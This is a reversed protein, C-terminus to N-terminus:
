IDKMMYTDVLLYGLRRYYGRVGTGSIIAVKRYGKDRAIEEAKAVLQKGYGKHQLSGEINNGVDSINSYIHLERILACGKISPLV